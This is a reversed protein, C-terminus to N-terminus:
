CTEKLIPVSNLLLLCTQGSTFYRTVVTEELADNAIAEIESHLNAVNSKALNILNEIEQCVFNIQSVEVLNVKPEIAETESPKDDMLTNFLNVFSKHKDAKWHDNYRYAYKDSESSVTANFDEESKDDKELINEKYSEWAISLADYKEELQVSIAAYKDYRKAKIILDVKSEANNYAIVAGRLQNFQNKPPM